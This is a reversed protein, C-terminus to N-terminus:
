LRTWVTRGFENEPLRYSAEGDRAVNLVARMFCMPTVAILM